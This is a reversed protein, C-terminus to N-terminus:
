EIDFISRFGLAFGMKPIKLNAEKGLPTIKTSIPKSVGFFIEHKSILDTKPSWAFGLEFRELIMDTLTYRKNVELGNYRDWGNIGVLKENYLKYGLKIKSAKSIAVELESSIEPRIWSNFKFLYRPNLKYYTLAAGYGRQNTGPYNTYNREKFIRENWGFNLNLGLNFNVKNAFSKSYSGNLSVVFISNDLNFSKDEIPANDKPNAYDDDLHIPVDRISLPVTTGKLPFNEYTLNYGGKFVFRPKQAKLNTSLISAGLALPLIIKTLSKMFFLSFFEIYISDM